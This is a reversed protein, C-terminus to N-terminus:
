IKVFKIKFSSVQKPKKIFVVYVGSSMDTLNVDLGSGEQDTFTFSKCIRGNVDFITVESDVVLGKITVVDKAPNPTLFVAEKQLIEVGSDPIFSSRDETGTSDGFCDIRHIEYFAQATHNAADTVTLRLTTWAGPLTSPNTLVWSTGTSVQTYNGVGIYSTEWLYTLPYVIAPPATITAQYPYYNQVNCIEKPGNISALFTYASGTGGSSPPEDRFCCVKGARKEIKKANNNSNNGTPMGMFDKDPNSWRLIRTPNPCANQAMMTRMTTGVQAGHHWTWIDAGSVNCTAPRQHRAGLLHGIEHTATLGGASNSFRIEAVCYAKKNSAGLNAVGITSGLHGATLLVVIDAYYSDRLNQAISNDCVDDLDDHIDLNEVFGPLLVTGAREFHVDTEAMGSAMCTTNIEDIVDLSISLPSPTVTAVAPTFLFLVRIRNIECGGRDEVADDDEEETAPVGCGDDERPISNDYKVLITRSPSLSIIRYFNDSAAIYIKGSVEDPRKIIQFYSGDLNYGVWFYNGPGKSHPFDAEFTTAVENPLNAQLTRGNLASEFNDVSIPWYALVEQQQVVDTLKSQEVNTLSPTQITLVQLFTNQAKGTISYLLLLLLIPRFTQYITKKQM